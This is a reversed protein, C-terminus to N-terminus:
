FAAVCRTRKHENHAPTANYRTTYYIILQALMNDRAFVAVLQVKCHQAISHLDLIHIIGLFRHRMTKRNQPASGLTVAIRPSM